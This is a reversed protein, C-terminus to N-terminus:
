CRPHRIWDNKLEGTTHTTRAGNDGAGQLCSLIVAAEIAHLNEALAMAYRTKDLAM